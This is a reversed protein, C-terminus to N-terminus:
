TNAKRLIERKILTVLIIRLVVFVEKKQKTLDYVFGM